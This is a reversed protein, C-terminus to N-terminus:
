GEKPSDSGGGSGDLPLGRFRAVREAAGMGDMSLKLVADFLIGEVGNPLDGVRIIAPKTDENTIGNTVLRVDHWVGEEEIHTVGASVVVSQVAVLETAVNDPLKGLIEGISEERVGGEVGEVAKTVEPVAALMAKGAALLDASVIKRIRFRMGRAEVEEVAAHKIAPVVKLVM